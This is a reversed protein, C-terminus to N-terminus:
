FPHLSIPCAKVKTPRTQATDAMWCEDFVSCYCSMITVKEIGNHIAAYDEPSYDQAPSFDVFAITERAALVGHVLDSTLIRPHPPETARNLMTNLLQRADNMPKGEFLVELSEIKAPGVGKNALDVHIHPTGDPNATSHIIQVFPWSNAEVLREMARGNHVALFLSIFSILVASVGLIM